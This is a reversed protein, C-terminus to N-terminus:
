WFASQPKFFLNLSDNVIIKPVSERERDDTDRMLVDRLRHEDVAIVTINHGDVVHSKSSRVFLVCCGVIL